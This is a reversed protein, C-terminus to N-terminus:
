TRQRPSRIITRSPVITFTASGDIRSSRPKECVDSAQTTFAYRSVKPPKRSSPPRSPSRKPWRRMNRDPMPRKVAAESAHPTAEDCSNRIAARATWPSPPATTEATASESSIISKV